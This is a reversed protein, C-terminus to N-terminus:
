VPLVEYKMDPFLLYQTLMQRRWLGWGGSGWEWGWEWWGVHWLIKGRFWGCILLCPLTWNYRLLVSPQIILKWYLVVLVLSCNKCTERKPPAVFLVPIFKWSSDVRELFARQRKLSTTGHCNDLSLAAATTRCWCAAIAKWPPTAVRGLRELRFPHFMRHNSWSTKQYVNYNTIHICIHIYIFIIIYHIYIYKIHIYKIHINYTCYTM